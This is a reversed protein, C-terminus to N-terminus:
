QPALAADVAPDTVSDPEWIKFYDDVLGGQRVTDANRLLVAAAEVATPKKTETLAQVLDWADVWPKGVEGHRARYTRLWGQISAGLRPRGTVVLGYATPLRIGRFSEVTNAVGKMMDRLDYLPSVPDDLFKVIEPDTHRIRIVDAHFQNMCAARLAGPAIQLAERGTNGCLIKARLMYDEALGAGCDGKPFIVELGFRWASRFQVMRGVRFGAAQLKDMIPAPDTVQYAAAARKLTGDKRRQRIGNATRVPLVMDDVTLIDKNFHPVHTTETGFIHAM